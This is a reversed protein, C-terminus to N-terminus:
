GILDLEIAVADGVDRPRDRRGVDGGARGPGVVMREEDQQVLRDIRWHRIREAVTAIIEASSLMGTKAADVGIDDVIADIQAAIIDTPIEHVARVGLTNQATIATLISHITPLAVSATMARTWVQPNRTWTAIPPM